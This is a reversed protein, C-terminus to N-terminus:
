GAIKGLNHMGYKMDIGKIHASLWVKLFGFFSDPFKKSEIIKEEEQAFRKLLQEHIIKHSALGDFKISEMYEEEEKFHRITYEKLKSLTPLLEEFSKGENNGEYLTNMLDLLDQHQHNMEQVGVDLQDSWEMLKM